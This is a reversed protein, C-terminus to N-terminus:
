GPDVLQEAFTLNGNRVKFNQRTGRVAGQFGAQAPVAALRPHVAREIRSRDRLMREGDVKARCTSRVFQRACEFARKTIQRAAYASRMQFREPWTWRDWFM